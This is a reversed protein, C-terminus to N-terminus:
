VSRVDVAAAERRQLVVAVLIWVTYAVAADEWSHLFLAAISVAIFALGISTQLQYSTTQLQMTKRLRRIILVILLIFLFFGIWGLEVGIQLYWNETVFPCNCAKAAPQVQKSAVFVCLDPHPVAWSVDSGADVYVCTDSKRNSAPGASALGLGFPHAVMTQIAALPKEIHGKSSATRVLIGPKLVSIGAVAVILLVAFGAAMKYLQHRPFTRCVLVAVVVFAAVWASRSFTLLLATGLVLATILDYYTSRVGYERDQVQFVKVLAISSPVLLWIGFQNPGSMTSQVRRLGLGGIQQFPALPGHAQYLSHLDSYGLWTFFTQPLVFSIIGYVSLIGGVILLGKLAYHQFSESWGVRRFVLFLMPPLFDYKFGLIFDGLDKQLFTVPISLAILSLILLDIKDTQLKQNKTKPQQFFEIVAVLLMIALLGEKWLVLHSEPPLNAGFFVRTLVTVLLAHFPLLLLLALTLRERIKQLM